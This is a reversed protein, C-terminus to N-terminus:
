LNTMYRFKLRIHVSNHCTARLTMGMPHVCIGEMRGCLLSATLIDGSNSDITSKRGTNVAHTHHRCELWDSNHVLLIYLAMGRAVSTSM